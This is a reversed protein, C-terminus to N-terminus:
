ENTTFGLDVDCHSTACTGNQINIYYNTNPELECYGLSLDAQPMEWRVKKNSSGTVSCNGVPLVSGGPCESLWMTRSVNASQVSAAFRVFGSTLTAASTTVSIAAININDVELHTDQKTVAWNISYDSSPVIDVNAPTTGCNGGGSSTVNVTIAKTDSGGADAVKINVIKSGLTAVQNFSLAGTTSVIAFLAGDDGTEISYTLADDEADTAQVTGVATAGEAVNFITSDIVPAQNGPGSSCNDYCVKSTADPQTQVTIKGATQEVTIQQVDLPAGSEDNYIHGNIELQYAAAMVPMAIALIAIPKLLKNM